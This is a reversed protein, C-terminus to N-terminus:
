TKDDTATDTKTMIDTTLSPKDDNADTADNKLSASPLIDKDKNKNL